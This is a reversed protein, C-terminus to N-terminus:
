DLVDMRKILNAALHYRHRTHTDSLLDDTQADHVIQHVEVIITGDPSEHFSEPEVQSSIAAFQRIWYEHVAKRGRIRGGEWANPWEVDPHM